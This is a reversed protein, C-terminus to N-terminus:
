EWKIMIQEKEKYFSVIVHKSKERVKMRISKITDPTAKVNFLNEFWSSPLIIGDPYSRAIKVLYNAVLNYKVDHLNFNSKIPDGIVRVRTIPNPYIKEFCWMVFKNWEKNEKRLMM